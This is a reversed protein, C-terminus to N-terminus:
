VDEQMPGAGVPGLSEPQGDDLQDGAAEQADDIYFLRAEQAAGV